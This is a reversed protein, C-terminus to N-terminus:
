YVWVGAVLQPEGADENTECGYLDCMVANEVILSAQAEVTSGNTGDALAISTMALLILLTKM